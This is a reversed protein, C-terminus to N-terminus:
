KRRFFRALDMEGLPAGGELHNLLQEALWPAALVGKSGLGNFMCVRDSKPSVGLVPRYDKVIPRVGANQSLVEFEGVVFEGLANLVTDKGAESTVDDFSDWSYTSGARFLGNGLPLIWKGRNVIAQPFSDLNGSKARLTMMEGKAPKFPLGEFFQNKGALWGECFVVRGFSKGRWIVCDERVELEEALVREKAFRGARALLAEALEVTRAVDLYGSATAEFSGLPDKLVGPWRDPEYERGIYSQAREQLKRKEFFERQEADKIIRIIPTPHFVREGLLADLERYYDLAVPLQEAVRWSPNLRKGALPNVVGPAVRSAAHADGADAVFAPIGRRELARWLSTGAIGLGVILYPFDPKM